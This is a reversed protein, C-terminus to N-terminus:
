SKWLTDRPHNPHFGFRHFWNRSQLRVEETNTQSNTSSDTEDIRIRRLRKNLNQGGMLVLGVREGKDQLFKAMTATLVLSRTSNDKSLWDM